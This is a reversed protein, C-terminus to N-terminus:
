QIILKKNYTKGSTFVEIFYTGKPQSSLDIESSKNVSEYIIKGATNSIKIKSVQLNQTEIRFIGKSPNPIVIVANLDEAVMHDISVDLFLEPSTASCNNTNTVVVAHNGNQTIVYTQSVAGNIINGNFYWQNGSPASSTLTVGNVTIVPIPPLPNVTVAVATSTASCGTANTVTVSYSGSTAVILSQTTSGNSWLYSTAPTANLTVFNGECFTTTGTAAVTPPVLPDYDIVWSIGYAHDISHLSDRVMLTTDLVQVSLTNIGSILQTSNVIVSDINSAIGVGNLQWKVRLTNPIPKTTSIKFKVPQFCYAVNAQNPLLSTVPSGFIQHIKEIITEKCVPCFPANLYRMKCNNHPRYWQASNGGCCHQYIGVGNYGLWNKWKVLAPNTQQTMNPREAMYGSGAFYEDKLSAFSHGIEHVLIEYSSSNLSSVALVGGSGGYYTSNVLVMPQDFLPVNNVLVNSIANYDQAVLLRHISGYDFTSNFYTNVTAAPFVPETVDLANAPHDTGSNLSPVRIAFVNFYNKYQSFPPITFLYNTLNQVSTLYASLQGTQFGDGMFVLDICNNSNGNYLITDVTFTQASVKFKGTLVSSLFLLFFCFSKSNFKM